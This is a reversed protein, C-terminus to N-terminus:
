SRIIENRGIDGIASVITKGVDVYKKLVNIYREATSKDGVKKEVVKITIFPVKNLHCAVCVGGSTCDFVVNNKHGLVYGDMYIHDLKEQTDYIANASIFTAREHHTFTRKEISANIVDTIDEQTNYSRPFHPLQALRVGAEKVQDIDGLIVRKSIAIDGEKLDGNFSVCKGVIFVLIVFYKSLVYNTILLSMYSTYIDYALIVQENFIKGIQLKYMGFVVEERRETMVSEFYLIDDHTSGLIMIM